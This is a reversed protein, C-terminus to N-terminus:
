SFCAIQSQKDSRGQLALKVSFKKEHLGNVCSRFDGL